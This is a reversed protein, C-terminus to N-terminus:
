NHHAAIDYLVAAAQVRGGVGLKAYVHDLHKKVTGPSIRLELGVGTNTAGAAVLRLVEAERMTLGLAELDQFRKAAATERVLIVDPQGARGPLYRLIATRGELHAVLPRILAPRDDEDSAIRSHAIWREVRAPMLSTPGPRGFFRYVTVLAGPTLEQTEDGLMVVGSDGAALANTAAGLLAALRSRERASRWMQALHPRLTNLVVRDREGFDAAERNLALAVIVPLPAPLTISMQFEVGMPEYVRRYLDSQHFVGTAWVDSIKRASGDGTENFLRVLPHGAVLAALIQSLEPSPNWTAPEAVFVVRDKAPDVENLTVVDCPVAARVGRVMATAFEDVDVARSVVDLVDLIMAHDSPGLASLRSVAREWV